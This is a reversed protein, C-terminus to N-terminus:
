HKIPRANQRLRSVPVTSKAREILGNSPLRGHNRRVRARHLNLQPFTLHRSADLSHPLAHCVVGPSSSTVFAYSERPMGFSALASLPRILEDWTKADAECDPIVEELIARKMVKVLFEFYRATGAAKFTTM